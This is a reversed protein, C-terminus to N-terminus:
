VWAAQVEPVRAHRVVHPPHQRHAQLQAQAEAERVLQLVLHLVQEVCLILAGAGDDLREALAQLLASEADVHCCRDEDPLRGAGDARVM